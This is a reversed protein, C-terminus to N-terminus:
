FTCQRPNPVIGTFFWCMHGKPSAVNFFQQVASTLLQIVAADMVYFINAREGQHKESAELVDLTSPFPSLIPFTAVTFSFM